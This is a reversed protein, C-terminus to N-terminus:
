CSSDGHLGNRKVRHVLNSWVAFNVGHTKGVALPIQVSRLSHKNYRTRLIAYVVSTGENRPFYNCKRATRTDKDSLGVTRHPTSNHAATCRQAFKRTSLMTQERPEKQLLLSNKNMVIWTKTSVPGMENVSRVYLSTSGHSSASCPEESTTYTDPCTSSLTLTLVYRLM